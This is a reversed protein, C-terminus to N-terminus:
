PLMRIHCSTLQVTRPARPGRRMRVLTLPMTPMRSAPPAKLGHRKATSPGDPAPLHAAPQAYLMPLM